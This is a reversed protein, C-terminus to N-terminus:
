GKADWKKPWSCGQGKIWDLGFVSGCGMIFGLFTWIILVKSRSNSKKYPVVVPQIATLIPTDEKVQIGAQLLQKAMETYITSSLNYDSTLRELQTRATASSIVRNADQFKALAVQKEEFDKKTEDYRGQVFDMQAKAKEIKFETIYKQLLDFAIQTVQAAAIPENMEATITIYGKKEDITMTLKEKLIKTCDYEDKNFSNLKKGDTVPIEIPKPEGKIAKMIVGPLGITYKMITGILNFKKYEPNTYYDILSIPEDWEKFKVKSYMLEKKFDVNNLIQPYVMPSLTSPSNTMSNLNIGALSALSSLSSSSTKSSTQPVFTCSAKYVKPQFLAVLLGLVMFCGTVILIFKRKHWLRKALAILDIEQEKLSEEVIKKADESM